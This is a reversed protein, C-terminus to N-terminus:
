VSARQILGWTRLQSVYFGVVIYGKTNRLGVLVAVDVRM